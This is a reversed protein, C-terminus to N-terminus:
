FRRLVDMDRTTYCCHSIEIYAYKSYMDLTHRSESYLIVHNTRPWTYKRSALFLFFSHCLDINFYTIM